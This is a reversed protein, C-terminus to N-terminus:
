FIVNYYSKDQKQFPILRALLIFKIWQQAPLSWISACSLECDSTFLDPKWPTEHWNADELLWVNWFTSYKIQAIVCILYTKGFSPWRGWFEYLDRSGVVRTVCYPLGYKIQIMCSAYCSYAELTNKQHMEQAYRRSYQETADFRVHIWVPTSVLHFGFPHSAM